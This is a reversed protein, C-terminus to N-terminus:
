HYDSSPNLKDPTVFYFGEPAKGDGQRLKPGLGESGYTHVAYTKFLTFSGGKKVWLELEKEEKFIRIYIPSGFSLGKEGLEKELAPKVRAIAEKSRASSPFTAAQVSLFLSILSITIMVYIRKNMLINM